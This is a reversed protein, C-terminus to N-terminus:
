WTRRPSSNSPPPPLTPAVADLVPTRFNRQGPDLQYGGQSEPGGNSPLNNPDLGLMGMRRAAREAEDGLTHLHEAADQSEKSWLSVNLRELAGEPDGSEMAQRLIQDREEQEYMLGGDMIQTMAKGIPTETFEKLASKSTLDFSSGFEAGFSTGAFNFASDDFQYGRSRASVSFGAVVNQAFTDLESGELGMQLGLALTSDLVGQALARDDSGKTWDFEGTSIRNMFATNAAASQTRAQMLRENETGQTFVSNEVRNSIVGTLTSAFYDRTIGRVSGDDRLWSGWRENMRFFYQAADAANGLNLGLRHANTEVEAFTEGTTGMITDISGTWLAIREEVDGAFGARGGELGAVFHSYSVGQQEAAVKMAAPDALFDDYAKLEDRISQISTAGFVSARNQQLRDWAAIEGKKEYNKQNIGGRWFGVAAGGIGAAIGGAAAMVPVLMMSAGGTIPALTLGIHAGATAGITAGITAAGLGTSLASAGAGRQQLGSKMLMAGGTVGAAQVGWKPIMALMAAPSAGAIGQLVQNDDDLSMALSALLPVALGMAGGSIYRNGFWGGSAQKGGPNVPTWPDTGNQQMGLLGAMSLQRQANLSGTAQSRMYRPNLKQGLTSSIAYQDNFRNQRVGQAFAGTMGRGMGTMGLFGGALVAMSGLGGLGNLVTVVTTLATVLPLLANVITMVYPIARSFANSFEEAFDGLKPFVDDKLFRFFESWKDISEFFPGAFRTVMEIFGGIMGGMDEGFGIFAAANQDILDRWFKIRDKATNWVEGFVNKVMEWTTGAAGEFAHMKDGLMGFFRTAGATFDRWWEMIDHFVQKVRPLDEVVIKVIWDLFRQTQNVLGPVMDELGVKTIVSSMQRLATRFMKEIEIFADKLPDLFPAGIEAFIQYFRTVMGKVVGMLTNELQNGRTKLEAPTLQGSLLSSILDVTPTGAAKQAVGTYISGQAGLTESFSQSSGQTVSQGLTKAMALYARPDGNALRALAPMIQGMQGQTAANRGLTNMVAANNTIGMMQVSPSTMAQRMPAVTQVMNNGFHPTMVMQAFEQNAAALVSVLTIMSATLGAVSATMFSVTSSWANMIFRGTALSAKMLLLTATVAALEIGFGKLNMRLLKRGFDGLRAGVRGIARGLAFDLTDRQTMLLKNTQGAIKQFAQLSLAGSALATQLDTSDGQISVRVTENKM